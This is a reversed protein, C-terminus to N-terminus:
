QLVLTRNMLKVTATAHRAIKLAFATMAFSFLLLAAGLNITGVKGGGVASHGSNGGTVFGSLAGADAAVAAGDTGASARGEGGAPVGETEVPASAEAVM